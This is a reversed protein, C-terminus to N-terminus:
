YRIRQDLFAVVIDVIMNATSFAVGILITVDVVALRDLLMISLVAFRGVGPWAFITETLVAGSLLGGVLLGLIMIPIVDPIGTKKFLREGLFGIAVAISISGFLLTITDGEFM